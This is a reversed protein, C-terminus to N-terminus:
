KFDVVLSRTVPLSPRSVHGKELFWVDSLKMPVCTSSPAYLPLVSLLVRNKSRHRAQFPSSFLSEFTLRLLRRTGFM